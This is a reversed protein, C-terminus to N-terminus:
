TAMEPLNPVGGRPVFTGVERARREAAWRASALGLAFFLVKAATVSMSFQHRIFTEALLGAVFIMRWDSAKAWARSLVYGGTPVFGCLFLSLGILGTDVAIELFLNHPYAGETAYSVLYGFSGLGHGLVPSQSIVRAADSYLQLRSQASPDLALGNASAGTFNATLRAIGLSVIRAGAVDSLQNLLILTLGAFLILGLGVYLALRAANARRMRFAFYMLFTAGAGLLLSRNALVFTFPLFVFFLLALLALMMRRQLTGFMLLTLAGVLPAEVAVALGVTNQEVGLSGVGSISLLVAPACILLVVISGDIFDDIFQDSDGFTRGLVYAGGSLVVLSNMIQRSVDFEYAAFVSLASLIAWLLLALEAPTGRFREPSRMSWACLVAFISTLGLLGGLSGFFVALSYSSIVAAALFGPRDWIRYVAFGIYALALAAFAYTM